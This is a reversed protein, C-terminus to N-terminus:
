WFVHVVFEYCSNCLPCFNDLNTLFKSLSDKTPLTGVAIRWLLMKLRQHLNSKWIKKMLVNVEPGVVERCVEKFASKISFEGNSTKMWIWKGVQNIRWRLINQIAQNTNSDFLSILNGMNWDTKAQNMLQFVALCPIEELSAKPLPKFDTLDPVWPESWVLTFNGSGVLKCANWVLLSKVREISRWVFSVLRSPSSNLRNSGM